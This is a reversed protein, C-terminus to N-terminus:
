KYREEYELNKIFNTLKYENQLFKEAISVFCVNESDYNSSSVLVKCM